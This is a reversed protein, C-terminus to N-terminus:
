ARAESPLLPRGRERRLRGILALLGGLAILAGGLWIFTVMPKWWLRLLWRDGERQSIVTYLQGDLRTAIAAENTQTPPSSFFRSQPDLRISTDGRTAVLHGEIATWNPGSVPDVGKFRVQWPGVRLVEGPRAAALTERTLSADAAAGAMALAIGLHSVVMGWITLPTRRLSRGALPLLSAAALGAAFALGLRPLVNLDPAVFTIAFAALTVLAPGAIRRLNPRSDRRWRLLPGIFLLAALILVLPGTVANFYPPGVSIKEGSLAEAAVPYLTGVFVTGLIVSLILNNAVLAGERSVPDFRAGERVSTIRLAFLLLAGGTYFILLGLIFSGRTPDVAFSHVSTLIGSRVLFTGIMSMSFAVVALMVTWARLSGRAALVNISHLLATAALWPMLSANEVPDWFWWGGWGLEYYAWYSGAVIGITLLVWAGLVWPRM